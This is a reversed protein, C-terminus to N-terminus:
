FDYFTRVKLIGSTKRIPKPTIKQKLTNLYTQYKKKFAYDASATHVSRNNRYLYQKITFTKFDIDCTIFSENICDKKRVFVIARRGKTIYSDWEYRASCNNQQEGEIVLERYSTPVIVTYDGMEFSLDVLTQNYKFIKDAEIMEQSQGTAYLKYDAEIKKVIDMIGGKLSFTYNSNYENIKNISQIVPQIFYQFATTNMYNRLQNYAKVILIIIDVPFTFITTKPYYWNYKSSQFDEIDEVNIIGNPMNELISKILANTCLIELNITASDNANNIETCLTSYFYKFAKPNNISDFKHFAYDYGVFTINKTIIAKYILERLAIFNPNIFPQIKLAHIFMSRILNDGKAGWNSIIKEFQIPVYDLPSVSTITKSLNGNKLIKRICNENTLQYDEFSIEGTSKDMREITYTFTGKNFTIKVSNITKM